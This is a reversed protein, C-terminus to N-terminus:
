GWLAPVPTAADRPARGNVAAHAREAHEESIEVVGTLFTTVIRLQEEDLADGLRDIDTVLPSLVGSAHEVLRSSLRVMTSRGDTPHPERVVHGADELRQVLASVGGSSLDLLQGLEGPTLRGHQSLHAVALMESDGLGLQRSVAARYRTAALDRRHLLQRIADPV